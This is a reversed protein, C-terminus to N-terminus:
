IIAPLEALDEVLGTFVVGAGAAWLGGAGGAVLPTVVVLPTCLLLSFLLLLISSDDFASDNFESALSDVVAFVLLVMVLVGEDM